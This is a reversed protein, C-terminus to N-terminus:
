YEVFAIIVGLTVKFDQQYNLQEIIVEIKSIFTV